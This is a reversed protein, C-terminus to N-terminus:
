CSEGGIKEAIKGMLGEYALEVKEGGEWHAEVKEILDRLFGARAEPNMWGIKDINDLEYNACTIVAKKIKKTMKAGAWLFVAGVVQGFVYDDKVSKHADRIKKGADHAELMERTYKFGHFSDDGYDEDDEAGVVKALVANYDLPTDGGMITESWSGM